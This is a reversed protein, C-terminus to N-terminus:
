LLPIGQAVQFCARAVDVKRYFNLKEKDADSLEDFNVGVLETGFGRMTCSTDSCNDRCYTLLENRSATEPLEGVKREADATTLLGAGVQRTMEEGYLKEAELELDIVEILSACIHEPYGEPTPIVVNDPM